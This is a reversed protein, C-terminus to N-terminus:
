WSKKLQSLQIQNIKLKYARNLWRLGLRRTIFDALFLGSGYRKIQFLAKAQWNQFGLQLREVWSLQIKDYGSLPFGRRVM